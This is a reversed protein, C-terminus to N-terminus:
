DSLVKAAAMLTLPADFTSTSPFILAGFAEESIGLVDL